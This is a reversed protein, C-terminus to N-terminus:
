QSRLIPLGKDEMFSGNGPNKLTHSDCFNNM